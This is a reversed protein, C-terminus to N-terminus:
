YGREDPTFILHEEFACDSPDQSGQCPLVWCSLFTYVTVKVLRAPPMATQLRGDRGLHQHFAQPLVSDIQTALKLFAPRYWGPHLVQKLFPPVM